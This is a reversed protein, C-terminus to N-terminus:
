AAHGDLWDAAIPISESPILSPIGDRVAYVRKFDATVLATEFPDEVLGDTQDRLSRQAIMDNLRRSLSEPAIVLPQGDVPCRILSLLTTDFMLDLAIPVPFLRM